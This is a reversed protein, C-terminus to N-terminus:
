ARSPFAIAAPVTVVVETGAGPRSWVAFTAGIHEARSRMGTLGFHGERGSDLIAQEIGRGDDRVAVRLAGDGYEVSIEVRAADAHHVANALAERAVYYVADRILPAVPQYQGIVEIRLDVPRDGKLFRGDRELAAELPTTDDRRLGTVARRGEDLVIHIRELITTLKDKARPDAIEDALFHLQMSSSVFGQLLTDHLDQAIRTREALRESYRAKLRAELRAVRLRFLAWIGAVGALLMTVRFWATQYFMPAISFAWTAPKASWAGDVGAMVEFRYDGHPLDTFFAQRRDAVDVWDKDRGVLRYRFQVKEPAGLSVATYDVRLDRTGPQVLGAVSVDHSVRDAAATLIHVPPASAPRPLVSPDIVFAGDYSAFWLRGDAALTAKPGYGGLDAYRQVGDNRNFTRAHQDRGASLWGTLAAAPVYTLGCATHMWLARDRDRMVWQVSACPAQARLTVVGRDDIRSVGSQTAVWLASEDDVYLDHVRGDALGEEGGFARAAKGDRYQVVGGQWFGVWLSGDRAAALARADRGGFASWKVVEVRGDSTHHLLGQEQESVWVGGAGDDVIAHVNRTPLARTGVRTGAEAVFLGQRTSVWLRGRRDELLSGFGAHDPLGAIAAPELAGQASRFLADATSVWVAGSTSREVAGVVMNAPGSPMAIRTAVVDRFRDIGNLTAVWVSGDADEFLDVVFDGSLGNAQAFRDIRSGHIRLVGQDQTGIWLAHDRDRLLRTPKLARIPLGASSFAGTAFRFVDRSATMLLDNQNGVISRIEGSGAPPEFRRGGGNQWRWLGTAAAVWLEGNVGPRLSLIYGGFQRSNESCHVQQGIDCLIAPRGSGGTGAFVRGDSTQALASVTHSALQPIETFSGNKLRGLGSTSGLWLAGDAGALLSVIATEGSWAGHAPRWATFTLGDFRLLETDTAIWLFGDATQALARPSGQLNGDRITWARHAVQSLPHKVNLAFGCEAIALIILLILSRRIRIRLM